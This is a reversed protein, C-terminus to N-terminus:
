APRRRRSCQLTCHENTTDAMSSGISLFHTLQAQLFLLFFGGNQRGQRSVTDMPIWNGGRAYMNAGNVRFRMTLNGSGDLGALRSPVSDDDTVLVFVRFGIQRTASLQSDQACATSNFTVNLTYLPQAGLGASFGILHALLFPHMCRHVSSLSGNPWWLHVDSPAALFSLTVNSEGPPLNVTQEASASAINQLGVRLEGAVGDAALFHVRVSVNFPAKASEDTM